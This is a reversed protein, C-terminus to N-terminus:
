WWRYANKETDRFEVDGLGLLAPDEEIKQQLWKENYESSNKLSLIEPKIFNLSM